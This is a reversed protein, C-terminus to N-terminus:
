KKCKFTIVPVFSCIPNALNFHELDDIVAQIDKYAFPAEEYFLNTDQCIVINSIDLDGQCCINRDSESKAKMGSQAKLRSIKRGAGHSLSYGTELSHTTRNPEVLWTRTGRSGPIVVPLDPIVPAAGKRHINYQISNIEIQEVWNHTLDLVYSLDTSLYNGFQYAIAWRNHKAWEIAYDHLLKYQTLNIQNSQYLQLIEEGLGRSGSHVLIYYFSEDINYQSIFDDSVAKDFQLLEVFHNGLGITGMSDLYKLGLNKLDFTLKNQNTNNQNTNNQNTNNECTDFVSEFKDWYSLDVPGSKFKGLDITNSYFQELYSQKEQNSEFIFKGIDIREALRELQKPSYKNTKISTKILSMSCGIDTGVLEPYINTNTNINTNTINNVSVCVSGVPFKGKHLDPMGILYKVGSLKKLNALQTQAETPVYSNHAYIKIFVNPNSYPNSLKINDKDFKNFEILKPSCMLRITEDLKFEQGLGTSNNNTWNILDINFENNDLTGVSLIKCNFKNSLLKIFDKQNMQKDIKIIKKNKLNDKLAVEFIM